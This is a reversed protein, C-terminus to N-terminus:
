GRQVQVLLRNRLAAAVGIGSQDVDLPELRQAPRLAREIPCARLGARQAHDGVLGVRGLEIAPDVRLDGADVLSPFPVVRADHHIHRQDCVTERQAEHPERRLVGSEYVIDQAVARQPL